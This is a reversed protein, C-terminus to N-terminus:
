GRQDLLVAGGAGPQPADSLIFCTPLSLALLLMGVLFVGHRGAATRIFLRDAVLPVVALVAGIWMFQTVTETFRLAIEEWAIGNM